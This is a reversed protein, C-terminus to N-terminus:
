TEERNKRIRREFSEPKCLVHPTNAVRACKRCFFTADRTLELLEAAREKIEHKSWDCLSEGMGGWWDTRTRAADLLAGHPPVPNRRATASSGRVKMLLYDEWVVSEM